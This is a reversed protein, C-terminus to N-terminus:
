APKLPVPLRIAIRTGPSTQELAFTGHLQRVRERMGTLGVGTSVGVRQFEALVAPPIGRGQDSVELRM